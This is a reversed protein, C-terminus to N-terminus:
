IFFRSLDNNQLFFVLDVFYSIKHLPQYRLKSSVKKLFFSKRVQPFFFISTVNVTILILRKWASGDLKATLKDFLTLINGISIEFFFLEFISSYVSFVNELFKELLKVYIFIKVFVMWVNAPRKVILFHLNSGCIKIKLIREM